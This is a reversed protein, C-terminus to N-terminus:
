LIESGYQYQSRSLWPLDQRKTTEVIGVAKAVCGSEFDYSSGADRVRASDLALTGMIALCSPPSSTFFLLFFSFLQLLPYIINLSSGCFITAWALYTAYASRHIFSELMLVFEVVYGRHALLYRAVM